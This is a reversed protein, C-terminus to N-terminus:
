YGHVLAGAQLGDPSADVLQVVLDQPQDVLAGRGGPFHRADLALGAVGAVEVARDPLHFHQPADAGGVGARQRIGVDGPQEPLDHRGAPRQLLGQPHGKQPGLAGEGLFCGDTVEAM